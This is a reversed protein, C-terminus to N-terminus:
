SELVKSINKHLPEVSLKASGFKNLLEDANYKQGHSYIDLLFEGAGPNVFWDEDFKEKLVENLNEQFMWARIYRATYFYGDVDQLYTHRSYNIKNAKSLIDAYVEDMEDLSEAEARKIEYDIKGAYRRLMMLEDFNRQIFYDRNKDFDVDLVKKMWLPNLTLHDLNMAYGETVSNDGFWKYEFGVKSDINAFHLAHGLEHLFTTYDDKGGRPSLVLYVENPIKVPSCFARPSKNERSEIDFKIKNSATIDIGMKNVFSSMKNMMQSKPFLKDFELARNMYLMDHRKLDTIKLGLKKKAFYSLTDTYMDETKKLFDQMQANIKYLDIGSLKQFMEVKNKFGFSKIIKNEETHSKKLVPNIEKELFDDKKEELENRREREHSKLIEGMISRFAIKQNEIEITGSTEKSLAQVTLESLEFAIIENYLNELLINLKNEESPNKEIESLILDINEKKHIDSYKSYIKEIEVDHKLGAGQLYFEKSIEQNFKEALERLKEITLTKGKLNYNKINNEFLPMIKKRGNKAYSNIYSPNKQFNRNEKIFKKDELM